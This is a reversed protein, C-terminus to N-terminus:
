TKNVLIAVLAYVECIDSAHELGEKSNTLTGYPVVVRGAFELIASGHDKHINNHVEDM